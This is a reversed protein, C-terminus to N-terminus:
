VELDTPTKVFVPPLIILGGEGGKFRVYKDFKSPDWWVLGRRGGGKM